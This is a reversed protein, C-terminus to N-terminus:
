LGNPYKDFIGKANITIRIPETRGDSNKQLYFIVIDQNYINGRIIELRLGNLIYDSNTEIVYHKNKMEKRRMLGTLYERWRYQSERHLDTEPNCIGFVSAEKCSPPCILPFLIQGAPWDAIQLPLLKFGTYVIDMFEKCIPNSEPTIPFFVRNCFIGKNKPQRKLIQEIFTTKGTLQRGVVLTIPAIEVNKCVFDKHKFLVLKM